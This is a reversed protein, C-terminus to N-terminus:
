SLLLARVALYAGGLLGAVAGGFLVLVGLPGLHLLLGPSDIASWVVMALVAPLPAIAAIWADRRTWVHSQGVLAMGTLWGVVPLGAGAVVLVLLAVLEWWGTAREPEDDEYRLGEDEYPLEDDFPLGHAHTAV